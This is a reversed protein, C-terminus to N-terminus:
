IKLDGMDMDLEVDAYKNVTAKSVRVKKEKPKNEAERKAKMEALAERMRDQPMEALEDRLVDALTPM